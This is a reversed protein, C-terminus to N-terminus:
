PYRNKGYNNVSGVNIYVIAAPKHKNLNSTTDYCTNLIDVMDIRFNWMDHRFLVM